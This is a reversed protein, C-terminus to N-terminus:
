TTCMELKTEVLQAEDIEPTLLDEILNAKYLAAYLGVASLRRRGYDDHLELSIRQKKM